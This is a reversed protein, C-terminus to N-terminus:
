TAVHVQVPRSPAKGGRSRVSSDSEADEEGEGMRPLRSDRNRKRRLARKRLTVAAVVTVCAAVAAGACSAAVVLVTSSSGSSGSMSAPPQLHEGGGGGGSTGSVVLTSDAEAPVAPTPSPSPQVSPLPAVAGGDATANGDLLQWFADLPLDPATDLLKPLSSYCPARPCPVPPM